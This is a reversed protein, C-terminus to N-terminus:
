SEPLIEALRALANNRHRDLEAVLHDADGARIAAIIRDHAQLSEHRGQPSNYYLARYNETSDWLLRM